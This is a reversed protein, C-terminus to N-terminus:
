LSRIQQGCQFEITATNRRSLEASNGDDPILWSENHGRILHGLEHLLIITRAQRTNPPFSGMNPVFPESPFTKSRYFAGLNNLDAREFLRYSILNRPEVFNAFTGSMRIGIRTDPITQERLKLVLEGLVTSSGRGFFSGCSNDGELINYADLYARELLTPRLTEVAPSHLLQMRDRQSKESVSKAFVSTTTTLLLAIALLLWFKM